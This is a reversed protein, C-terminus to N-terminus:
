TIPGHPRPWAVKRAAAVFPDAAPLLETEPIVEAETGDPLGADPPLIVVGNKVTGKYTMRRERAGVFQQVDTRRRFL